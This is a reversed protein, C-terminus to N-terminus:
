RRVGGVRADEGNWAQRHELRELVDLALGIDRLPHEAWAPSRKDPQLHALRELETVKQELIAETLKRIRGADM